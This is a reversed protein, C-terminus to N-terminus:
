DDNMTSKKSEHLIFLNIKDYSPGIYPEIHPWNDRFMTCFNECTVNKHYHRMLLLPFIISLPAVEDSCILGNNVNRIVTRLLTNVLDTTEQSYTIMDQRTISGRKGPRSPKRLLKKNKVKKM